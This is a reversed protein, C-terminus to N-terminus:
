AIFQGNLFSIWLDLALTYFVILLSITFVTSKKNGSLKATLPIWLPFLVSIFRPTSVLAGFLLIGIYGFFSYAFLLKNKKWTFYFLLVPLLLAIGEAFPLLWHTPIPQPQYPAQLLAKLGFNPIGDTILTRVSYLYSWESTHLPALFDKTYYGLAAFWATLSTVPILSLLLNRTKHTKQKLAYYIMPLVVLIGMTRTLPAIAAFASAGFFNGKKLLLWTILVFFLLLCESYAVTTFIFLYPSFALLLASLLATKKSMFDEALLQYIPIWLLGFVLSIIVTSVMPNQIGTNTLYSISPLIPSFAYSQTSFSYGHTMISLYWASDWGLFTLPWRGMTGPNTLFANNQEWNYVKGPNSWFTGLTQINMSYYIFIAGAVRAALTIILPILLRKPIKIKGLKVYDDFFSSM